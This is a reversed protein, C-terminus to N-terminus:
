FWDRGHRKPFLSQGICAYQRDELSTVKFAYGGYHGGFLGDLGLAKPPDMQNFADLIKDDMVKRELMNKIGPTISGIAM